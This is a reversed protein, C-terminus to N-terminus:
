KVVVVMALQTNEVGGLTLLYLKGGKYGLKEEKAYSDWQSYSKSNRLM